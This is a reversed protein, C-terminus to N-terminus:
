KKFGLDKLNELILEPQNDNNSRDSFNKDVEQLFIVEINYDVVWLRLREIIKEINYFDKIDSGHHINWTL